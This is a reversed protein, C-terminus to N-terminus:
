KSPPRTEDALRITVRARGKNNSYAVAQGLPAVDNALVYAEGAVGAPVTFTAEFLAPHETPQMDLEAVHLSPFRLPGLVRDPRRIAVIPQLYRAGMVRRFPVGLHGAFGFQRGSIGRPDGGIWESTADAPRSPEGGDSWGRIPGGEGARPLEFTIRYTTQGALRIGLARCPDTTDYDIQARVLM